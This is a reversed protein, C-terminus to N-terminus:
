NNGFLINGRPCLFVKKSLQLQLLNIMLKDKKVNELLYFNAKHVYPLADFSRPFLLLFYKIVCTSLM